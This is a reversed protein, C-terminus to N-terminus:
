GNTDEKLAEALFIVGEMPYDKLDETIVDRDIWALDPDNLVKNVQTQLLARVGKPNDDVFRMDLTASEWEILGIEKDTLRVRKVLEEIKKNM